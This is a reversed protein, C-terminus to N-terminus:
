EHPWFTLIRRLHTILMWRDPISCWWIPTYLIPSAVGTTSWWFPMGCFVAVIVVGTHSAGTCSAIGVSGRGDHLRSSGSATGHIRSIIALNIGEANYGRGRLLTALCTLHLNWIPRLWGCTFSLPFTYLCMSRRWGFRFIILKKFNNLQVTLEDPIYKFSLILLPLSWRFHVNYWIYCTCRYVLAAELSSYDHHM